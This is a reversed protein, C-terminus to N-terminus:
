GDAVDDDRVHEIVGEADPQGIKRTRNIAMKATAADLLEDLSFEARWTANLVLILCDGLETIFGPMDAVEWDDIAEAAERKLHNLAGVPGRVERSGHVDDRGSWDNIDDYLAKLKGDTV